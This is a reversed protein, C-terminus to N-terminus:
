VGGKAGMALGALLMEDWGWLIDYRYNDFRLCQNFEMLDNHTYKIGAFNPIADGAQQLFSTMSLNVGTLIPIHYFYFALEPAAAAIPRIFDVLAEVSGTKIYYPANVAIGYLQHERAYAALAIGEQQSTGSVMAMVKFDPAQYPAWAAILAKKEDFMLSAGEGTTGNIFVGKIGNIRLMRAYEPIIDTHLEGTPSFPSFTAAILGTIHNFKM